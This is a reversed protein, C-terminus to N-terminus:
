RRLEDTEARLGKVVVGRSYRAMLAVVEERELLESMSPIGRRPDEQLNM